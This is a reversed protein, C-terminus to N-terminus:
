RNRASDGGGLLAIAAAVDHAGTGRAAAPQAVRTSSHAHGAAGGAKGRVAAAGEGADARAKGASEAAVRARLEEPSPVKAAAGGSARPPEAPASAAAGQAEGDEVWTMGYDPTASHAGPVPEVGAPLPASAAVPAAASGQGMGLLAKLEKVPFAVRVARGEGPMSAAPGVAQGAAVGIAAPSFGPLAQAPIAVRFSGGGTAVEPVQPPLMLDEEGPVESAGYEAAALEQPAVLTYGVPMESAAEDAAVEGAGSYFEQGGGTGALAAGADAAARGARRAEATERVGAEAVTVAAPAGAAPVATDAGASLKERRVRATTALESKAGRGGALEQLTARARGVATTAAPTPAQAPRTALSVDVARLASLEDSARRIIAHSDEEVEAVKGEETGSSGGTGEASSPATGLAADAPVVAPQMLQDGRAYVRDLARLMVRQFASLHSAPAGSDDEDHRKPSVARQVPTPRTEPLAPLIEEGNVYQVVRVPIPQVTPTAVLQQPATAEGHASKSALRMLAGQTLSDSRLSAGGADDGSGLRELEATTHALKAKM